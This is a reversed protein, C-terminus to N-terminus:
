LMHLVPLHGEGLCPPSDGGAQLIGLTCQCGSPRLPVVQVATGQGRGHLFFEPLISLCM